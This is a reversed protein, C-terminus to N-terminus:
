LWRGRKPAVIVEVWTGCDLKVRVPGDDPVYSANFQRAREFRGAERAIWKARDFRKRRTAAATAPVPERTQSPSTPLPAADVPALPARQANAPANTLDAQTRRANTDALRNSTEIAATKGKGTAETNPVAFKRQSSQGQGTTHEGTKKRSRNNL